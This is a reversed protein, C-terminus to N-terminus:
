SITILLPVRTLKREKDLRRHDDQLLDNLDLLSPSWKQQVLDREELKALSILYNFLGLDLHRPLIRNLPLTIGKEKFKFKPFAELRADWVRKTLPPFIYHAGSRSSIIIDLDELPCEKNDNTLINKCTQTGYGIM